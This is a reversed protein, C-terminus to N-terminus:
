RDVRVTQQMAQQLIDVHRKPSHLRAQSLAGRQLDTYHTSDKLCEVIAAAFNEPELRGPEAFHGNVAEKLWEGIGGVDFAVAPVGSAGAELGVLGTPEPWLSPMALLHSQAFLTQLEESSQWGEFRIEVKSDRIQKALLKWRDLDPGDGAITLLIPNTLKGAAILIAALLISGGKLHDARGAFTIRWPEHSAPAELLPSDSIPTVTIPPVVAIRDGPMGHKEYETKMHHSMTMIRDYGLLLKLRARQKSYEKSLVFPNLGGIRRPYYRALCAAGFNHPCPKTKPFRLTKTGTICTGYYTHAFLITVFGNTLTRENEPSLFGHVWVVDPKWAELARRTESLGSAHISIRDMDKPFVPESRNAPGDIETVLLIDHGKHILRSALEAVYREAGGTLRHTWNLVAIRM